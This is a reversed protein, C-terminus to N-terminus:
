KNSTASTEEDRWSSFLQAPSLIVVDTITWMSSIISLGANQTSLFNAPIRYHPHGIPDGSRPDWWWRYGVLLDLPCSLTIFTNRFCLVYLFGVFGINKWGSILIWRLRPIKIESRWAEASTIKKRQPVGNSRRLVFTSEGAATLVGGRSHTLCTQFVSLGM